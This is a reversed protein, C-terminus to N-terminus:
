LSDAAQADLRVVFASGFETRLERALAEAAQQTPEEGVLVRWPPSSSERRMLRCRPYRKRLSKELREANARNQFAGLQVAYLEGAAPVCPPNIVQLRVKVIGAALMDIQSAAARSLDIIRGEVFPGRDTIRVQVKKGSGLNTVEVWSDFPLIRHAATLKQMDYIEGNASRRGHYPYGYWSAVGYEVGGPLPAVPAPIRRKKACSALLLAAAALALARRDPDMSEILVIEQPLTKYKKAGGSERGGGTGQM